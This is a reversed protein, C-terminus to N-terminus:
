EKGKGSKKAKAEADAKAKKFAQFEEYEEKAKREDEAAKEKALRSREAANTEDDVAIPKGEFYPIQWDALQAAQEPSLDILGGVDTPIPNGHGGSALLKPVGETGLPFYVASSDPGCGHEIGRKDLVRYKPM